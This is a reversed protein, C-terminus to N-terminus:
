AQKRRRWRKVWNEAGRVVKKGEPTWGVTIEGLLHQLVHNRGSVRRTQSLTQSVWENRKEVYMSGYYWLDSFWTQSKAVGHVTGCWAGRDMPSGLCSYQLPSGNGEGSSRRSGPIWGTDGANAPPSKVVLYAGIDCIVLDLFLKYSLQVM